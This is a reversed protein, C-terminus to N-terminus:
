SRGRSVPLESGSGSVFAIYEWHREEILEEFGTRLVALLAARMAGYSQWDGMRLIKRALDESAFELAFALQANTFSDDHETM